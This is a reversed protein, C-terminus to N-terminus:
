SSEVRTHNNSRREESVLYVIGPNNAKLVELIV